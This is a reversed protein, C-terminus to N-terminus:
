GTQSPLRRSAYAFDGFYKIAAEQYAKTAAEKDTFVGLYVTKRTM